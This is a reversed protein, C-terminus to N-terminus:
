RVCFLAIGERAQMVASELEREDEATWKVSVKSIGVTRVEREWQQRRANLALMPVPDAHGTLLVVATQRPLSQYLDTLQDNMKSLAETPSAAAEEEAAAATVKNASGASM